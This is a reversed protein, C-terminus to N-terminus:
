RAREAPASAGELYLRTTHEILRQVFTEDMRVGLVEEALSLTLFPFLALSVLSLAGLTADFDARLRLQTRERELLAPLRGIGRPAFERIFTDRFQGGETLVERVLLRPVWPEHAMITMVTKLIDPVTATLAADQRAIAEQIRAFLPALTEEFMARYLGQKDGFHYHVMAPNVHAARAIDRVSVATFDRVTFLEHAARLLEARVADTHAAGGPRGPRRPHRTSPAAKRRTPSM